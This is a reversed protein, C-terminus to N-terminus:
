LSLADPEPPEQDGDQPWEGVQHLRATVGRARRLIAALRGHQGFGDLVRPVAFPIAARIEIIPRRESRLLVALALDVRDRLRPRDDRPGALGRAGRLRHSRDVRM